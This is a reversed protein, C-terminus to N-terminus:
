KEGISQLIVPTQPPETVKPHRKRLPDPTFARAYQQQKNQYGHIDSGPPVQQLYLAV